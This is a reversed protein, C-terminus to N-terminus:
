NVPGKQIGLENEIVHLTEMIKEFFEHQPHNDDIEEDLAYLFDIWIEINTYIYWENKLLSKFNLAQGGMAEIMKGAQEEHNVLYISSISNSTTIFLKGLRDQKDEHSANSDLIDNLQQYLYTQLNEDNM